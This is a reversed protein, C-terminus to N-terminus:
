LSGQGDPMTAPINDVYLRVGRVGFTSRAGYGRISLQLDQAYNQRNKIQLGPVSALGESLNVQLQHERMHEGDLVTASTPLSQLSAGNTASRIEVTDLTPTADQAFASLSLSGLLIAIAQSQASPAFSPM